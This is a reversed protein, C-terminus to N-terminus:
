QKGGIWVGDPWRKKCDDFREFAYEAVVYFLKQGGFENCCVFPGSPSHLPCHRKSNDARCNKKSAVQIRKPSSMICEKDQELAAITAKQVQRQYSGDLHELLHTITENSDIGSDPILYHMLINQASEIFANSTKLAERLKTNKAELEAICTDKENM